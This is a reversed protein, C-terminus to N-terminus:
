HEGTFICRGRGLAMPSLRARRWRLPSARSAALGSNSLPAAPSRRWCSKKGCTGLRAERDFDDVEVAGALPEVAGARARDLPICRRREPRRPQSRDLVTPRLLQIFMAPSSHAHADSAGRRDAQAHTPRVPEEAIEGARRPRPGPVGRREGVLEGADVRIRRAAECATRSRHRYGSRRRCRRIRSRSPSRPQGLSMQNKGTAQALDRVAQAEDGPHAPHAAGFEQAVVVREHRVEDVERLGRGEGVHGVALAECRITRGRVGTPGPMRAMPRGRWSSLLLIYAGVPTLRQGHRKARWGRAAAM